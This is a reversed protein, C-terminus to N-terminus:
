DLHLVFLSNTEKGAGLPSTTQPLGCLLLASFSISRQASHKREVQSSAKTGQPIDLARFQLYDTSTLLTWAKTRSRSPCIPKSSPLWKSLSKCSLNHFLESCVRCRGLSFQIDNREKGTSQRFMYVYQTQAHVPKCPSSVPFSLSPFPNLTNLKHAAYDAVM